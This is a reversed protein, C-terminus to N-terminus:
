YDAAQSEIGTNHREHTSASMETDGTLASEKVGEEESNCAPIAMISFVFMGALVSKVIRKLM